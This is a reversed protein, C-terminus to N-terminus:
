AGWIKKTVMATTMEKAPVTTKTKTKPVRATRRPHRTMRRAASRFVKRLPPNPLPLLLEYQRTRTKQPFTEMVPLFLHVPLRLLLQNLKTEWRKQKEKKAAKQM